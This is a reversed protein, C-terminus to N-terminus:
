CIFLLCGSEQSVILVVARREAIEKVDLLCFDQTKNIDCISRKVKETFGFTVLKSILM